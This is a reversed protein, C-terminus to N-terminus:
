EALKQIGCIQELKEGLQLLDLEHHGVCGNVKIGIPVGRYSIVDNGPNPTPRLPRDPHHAGEARILTGECNISISNFPVDRSLRSRYANKNLFLFYMWSSLLQRTRKLTVAM